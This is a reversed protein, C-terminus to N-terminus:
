NRGLVMHFELLGMERGRRISEVAYEVCMRGFGPYKLVASGVYIKPRLGALNIEMREQDSEDMVLDVARGAMKEIKRHMKDLFENDNM